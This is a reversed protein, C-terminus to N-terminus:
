SQGQFVLSLYILLKDGPRKRLIFCLWSGPLLLFKSNTTILNVNFRMMKESIIESLNIVFRYWLVSGPRLNLISKYIFCHRSTIKSSSHAHLRKEITKSVSPGSLMEWFDSYASNSLNAKWVEKEISSRHSFWFWIAKHFYSIELCGIRRSTHVRPNIIIM